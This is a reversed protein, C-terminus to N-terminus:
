DTFGALGAGPVDPGKRQVPGPQQVLRHLLWPWNLTLSWVNFQGQSSCWVTIKGDAGWHATATHPEIYGQHVPRTRFEREVVVDAEKFGKELDGHQFIHTAAVNTDQGPEGEARLSGGRMPPNGVNELGEHLIPAGEKMAELVDFVPDLVEYDVEILFLAEEAVHASTAAVAAVAHGKYLAKTDAICNNSLFKFNELTGRVQDSGKGSLKPFDAGTVVARVGPLAEAKSTDIGKIRAHAHPSRLIKAYLMDSLIIDAGYQARGTVKDAGDHRVPRTGIVDYEQTSLVVNSAM